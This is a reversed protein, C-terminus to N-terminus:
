VCDEELAIINAKKVQVIHSEELLVSYRGTAVDANSILVGHRGNLHSASVLNALEVLHGVRYLDDNDPPNSQVERDEKLDLNGNVGQKTDAADTVLEPFIDTEGVVDDFINFFVARLLGQTDKRFLLATYYEELCFMMVTALIKFPILAPDQNLEASIYILPWLLSGFISAFIGSLAFAFVVIAEMCAFFLTFVVLLALEAQQQSQANNVGQQALGICTAVYSGIVAFFLFFALALSAVHNVTVLVCGISEVGKQSHNMFRGHYLLEMINRVGEFVEQENELQEKVDEHSHELFKKGPDPYRNYGYWLHFVLQGLFLSFFGLAAIVPNEQVILNALTILVAAWNNFFEVHAWFPRWEKKVRFSYFPIYTKGRWEVRCAKRLEKKFGEVADKAQEPVDKPQFYSGSLNNTM